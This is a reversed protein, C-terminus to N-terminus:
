NATCLMTFFLQANQAILTIEKHELWQWPM